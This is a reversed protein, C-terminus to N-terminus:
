DGDVDIVGKKVLLKRAEDASLIGEEVWTIIDGRLTSRSYDMIDGKDIRIGGGLKQNLEALIPEIYRNLGNVYLQATMELSSQADGKGELFSSPIGFVKAVQQKNWDLNNLFKAIDANISVTQFDASQDLVLTRGANEGMNAKEFNERVNNKAEESLIGEPIKILNTPNIANKLTSIALRNANDQQMLEASLAELPSRGILNFVGNVEGYAMIKFHLMDKESIVEDEFDDFASVEYTLNDKELNISVCGVPIHRLQVVTGTKDREIQVFANGNLLLNIIVTQWFNYRNNLHSIPNNLVDVVRNESIFDAGALDSSILAIVSYIDSNRLAVNASIPKNPILVGNQSIFPTMIPMKASRKQFPKLLNM